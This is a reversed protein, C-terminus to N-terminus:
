PAVSSSFAAASAFSDHATARMLAPSGNASTARSTDSSGPLAAFPPSTPSLVSPNTAGKLTAASASLGPSVVRRRPRSATRSGSCRSPRGRRLGRVDLRLELLREARSSTALAFAVSSRAPADRCRMSSPSALRCAPASSAILSAMAGYTFGCFTSVSLTSGRGPRLRRRHPRPPRRRRPRPRRRRRGLLGAGAQRGLAEVRAGVAVPGLRLGRAGEVAAAVGERAQRRVPSRSPRHAEREGALLAVHEVGRQARRVAAVDDCSLCRLLAVRSSNSFSRSLKSSSSSRAFRSSASLRYTM